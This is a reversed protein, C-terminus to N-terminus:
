RAVLYCRGVDTSRELYLIVVQKGTGAGFGRRVSIWEKPRDDAGEVEAEIKANLKAKNCTYM